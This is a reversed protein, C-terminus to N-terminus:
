LTALIRKRQEAWEADDVLGQARLRDLERLREAVPRGDAPRDKGAINAAVYTAALGDQALASTMAADGPDLGARRALRSAMSVRVVFLGVGILGFIVLLGIVEPPIGPGTM